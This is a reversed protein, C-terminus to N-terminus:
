FVRQLWRFLLWCFLTGAVISPLRLWWESTGLARWFYLLFILGPPHATSLSANYAAGWSAQNAVLFHLAEDPNFFTGTAAWLRVLFAVVLVLLALWVDWDRPQSAPTSGLPPASHWMAM